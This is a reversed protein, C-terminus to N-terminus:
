WIPVKLSLATSRQSDAIYGVLINVGAEVHGAAMFSSRLIVLKILTLYPAMESKKIMKWPVVM